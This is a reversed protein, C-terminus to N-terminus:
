LAAPNFPDDTKDMWTQLLQRHHQIELEYVPDKALNSNEGPDDRLNFFQENNEGTSFINYKFEATRVMRGRRSPDPKYDALEVVLFARWESAPQDIIQRLSQGTFDPKEEIAAYDCLTPLIDIQSVLHQHDKRGAPIHDKWSIIMPVKSSEEYLSLKAAWQHSTAGDGHDSTFVVITNDDLENEALADLVKGIEVDVLETL